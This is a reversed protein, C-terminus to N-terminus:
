AGPGDPSAFAAPEPSEWGLLEALRTMVWRAEPPGFGGETSDLAAHMRSLILDEALSLERQLSLAREVLMQAMDECLEYRDRFVALPATLRGRADVYLVRFSPPIHIQYEDPM